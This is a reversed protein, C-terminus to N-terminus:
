GRGAPLADAIEFAGRIGSKLRRLSANAMPCEDFAALWGSPWPFEPVFEWEWGDFGGKRRWQRLLGIRAGDAAVEVIDAGRAARIAGFSVETM